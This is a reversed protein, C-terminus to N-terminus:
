EIMIEREARIDQSSAGVAIRFAGPEVVWRYRVDMLRFAEQGLRFRVERKEGPALTIRRFGQLTREPTVVSSELDTVYLQVVEDATMEGLNEVEVAVAFSYPEALKEM